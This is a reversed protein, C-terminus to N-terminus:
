AGRALTAHEERTLEDPVLHTPAGYTQWWRSGIRHTLRLTIWGMWAATCAGCAASSRLRKPATSSAPTTLPHPCPSASPNEREREGWLQWLRRVVPGNRWAHVATFTLPRGLLARSHAIYVLNHLQMQTLSRREKGALRIFENAIM